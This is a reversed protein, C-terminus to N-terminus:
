KIRNKPGYANYLSRGTIIFGLVVLILIFWGIFNSPLFALSGFISAAGLKNNEDVVQIIKNITYAIEDKQYTSDAPTYSMVATTVITDQDKAEANLKGLVKFSNSQSPALTGFDFIITNNEDEKGFDSAIFDVSDPLQVSIKVNEFNKSSNNNFTVLYEVEGGAQVSETNTSIQIMLSQTNDEIVTPEEIKPEPNVPDEKALTTRFVLTKGTYTKGDKKAMARFYYITDPTLKTIANSFSVSSKTGLNITPTTKGLSNTTGYEFYGQASSNNKNVFIGNLKASTSYQSTAQVTTISGTAIEALTKFSKIDGKKTGNQNEASARFYYITNPVLDSINQTLSSREDGSGMDVHTSDVHTEFTSVTSYEFWAFTSHNRPDIAGNLTASNDAINSSSVTFVYPYLTGGGGGGGGFGGGPNNVTFTVSGSSCGVGNTVSINFSGASSLDTSTLAITLSTPNTVSTTRNSGDFLAQSTGNVFNSGTVTVITAPSGKNKNNPSLSSVTPPNPCTITNLTTFSVWNGFVPGGNNGAYVRFQYTTGPTLGTLNYPLMTIDSTGNGLVQTQFPGGSMTEFWATTNDGNPNVIGNLTVTTEQINTATTSIITPASIPNGLTTFSIWNTFLIGGDSGAYVRVQYTTNPTLGTLDYSLMDIPVNGNGLVQTQFPGGSMTEFWATTNQANPGNPNVTGNLTASTSMINTVSVTGTPAAALAFNAFASLGLIFSVLILKKIINKM